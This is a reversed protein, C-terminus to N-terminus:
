IRENWQKIVNEVMWGYPNFDGPYWFLDKDWYGECHKYVFPVFGYSIEIILPEGKKDFIFDYSICQTRLKQNVDFAIKVCREDIQNRDYVIHGSGSARFDDKRNFRKIAFAFDGIVIVRIDFENEAIFDQFYAYGKDNGWVRAYEPLYFFRVIGKILEIIGVDGNRFKRIREKLSRYKNYQPHGKGFSKRILRSAQKKTKVLMVNSSGGGGRLKFVKPFVTNNIWELAENRSYFVYSQILPIKFAELLYKQGVKDDFHWLTRFNPFVSKGSEEVSFLLQKFFKEAKYDFQLPHIMLADCEEIDHMVTNSFIDIIKYPISKEDCYKLWHEAFGGRNKHIAIKM